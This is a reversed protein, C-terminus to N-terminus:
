IKDTKVGKTKQPIRPIHQEFQNLDTPYILKSIRASVDAKSAVTAGTLLTTLLAARRGM